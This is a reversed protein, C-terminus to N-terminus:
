LLGLKKLKTVRSVNTYVINHEDWCIGPGSRGTVRGEVVVVPERSANFKTVQGVDGVCHGYYGDYKEYVHRHLNKIEDLRLYDGIKMAFKTSQRGRM